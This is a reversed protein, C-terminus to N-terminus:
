FALEFRTLSETVTVESDQTPAEIDDVRTPAVPINLIRSPKYDPTTVPTPGWVSFTSISTNTPTSVKEETEQSAGPKEFSLKPSTYEPSTYGSSPISSDNSESSTTKLTHSKFSPITEAFSFPNTLTSTSSLSLEQSSPSNIRTHLPNESSIVPTFSTNSMQLTNPTMVLSEESSSTSLSETPTGIPTKTLTEILSETLSATLSETFSEDTSLPTSEEVPSPEEVVSASSTSIVPDVSVTSPKEVTKDVTKEATETLADRAPQTDSTTESSLEFDGQSAQVVENSLDSGREPQSLTATGSTTIGSGTEALPEEEPSESLDIDSLGDSVNVEGSSPVKEFSTLSIFGTESSFSERSEVGSTVLYDSGSTVSLPFDADHTATGRQTATPFNSVDGEDIPEVKFYSSSDRSQNKVVELIGDLVRRKVLWQVLVALALVTCASIATAFVKQFFGKSFKLNDPLRIVCLTGDSCTSALFQGSPSFKVSTVSSSHLKKFVKIVRFNESKIVIVSFDNGSLAILGNKFCMSTINNCKTSVVSKRIMKNVSIDYQTLSIGNKCCGGLAVKKDSIFEVKCLSDGGFRDETLLSRGTITSVAELKSNTVFCLIKGDPSLALDKSEADTKVTHLLALTSADVIYISPPQDFSMAIAAIQGNESIRTVKQYNNIATKPSLQITQKAILHDHRFVFRRLHNNIGSGIVSSRENMGLLINGNELSADISVPYDDQDPLKIERYRKLPKSSEFNINVASLRNPKDSQEGGGGAVLLLNETIFQSGYLPHDLHYTHKIM